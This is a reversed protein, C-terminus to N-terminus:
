AVLMRQAHSRAASADVLQEVLALAFALATGVGRSTIVNGDVVVASADDVVAGALQSEFGPYCTARRGELVGFRALAIPAACV